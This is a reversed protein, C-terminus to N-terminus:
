YQKPFKLKGLQWLYQDLQKLSFQDLKYFRRFSCLIEKFRPYQLLEPTAFGCFGDVDRFYELVKKIYDDYIPFDDPYHHSCYKTAFSYENRIKGSEYTVMAIENVLTADRAELRSDIKLDAIHKAVWYVKFINTSYFDNLTAAKVLIDELDINRPYTNMFLKNLAREQMRYDDLGEWRELYYLVQADNPIPIDTRATKFRKMRQNGLHHSKASLLERVKEPNYRFNVIQNSLNCGDVIFDSLLWGLAYSQTKDNAWYYKRTSAPLSFGLITEIEAFSLSLFDTGAFHKAKLFNTFELYKDGQPM